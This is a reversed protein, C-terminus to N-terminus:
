KHSSVFKPAQHPQFGRQCYNHCVLQQEPRQVPELRTLKHGAKSWHIMMAINVFPMYLLTHIYIYIVYMSTHLTYQYDSAHRSCAHCNCNTFMGANSACDAYLLLLACTALPVWLTKLETLYSFSNAPISRIDNRKLDRGSSCCEFALLHMYLTTCPYQWRPHRVKNKLTITFVVM